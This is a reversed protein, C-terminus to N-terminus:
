NYNYVIIFEGRTQEIRTTEIGGSSSALHDERQDIVQVLRDDAVNM